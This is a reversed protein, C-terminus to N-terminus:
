RVFWLNKKIIEPLINALVRRAIYKLDNLSTWGFLEALFEGPKKQEEGLEKAAWDVFAQNKNDFLFPYVAKLNEPRMLDNEKKAIEIPIKEFGPLHMYNKLEVHHIKKTFFVPCGFYNAYVVHSGIANTYVGECSSFLNALRSFTTYDRGKAGPVITIGLKQVGSLYELNNCDNNHVLLKINNKSIGYSIVEQIVDFVRINGTTKNDGVGHNVIILFGNREKEPKPLYIFPSGISIAGSYGNKRLYEQQDMRHTIILQDKNELAYHAGIITIPDINIIEPLWGHLTRALYRYKKIKGLGYLSYASNEGYVDDIYYVLKQRPKFNPM